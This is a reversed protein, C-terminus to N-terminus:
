DLAHRLAHVQLSEVTATGNGVMLGLTRPGPLRRLRTTYPLLGTAYVEVIDADAVIRVRVPPAAGAIAPQGTTVDIRSSSGDWRPGLDVEVTDDYRTIDFTIDAHAPIDTVDRQGDVRLEIAHKIAQQRLPTVAGDVLALVLKSDRLRVRRPLSLAGVRRRSDPRSDHPAPDRIWGWLLVDGEHTLITPAYLLDGRDIRQVADSRLADDALHGIFAIAYRLPDDQRADHVSVILVDSCGIRVFQPMEWLLGTEIPWSASGDFLVGNFTWAGDDGEEYHVVAGAAHNGHGTSSGLIMQRRGRATFIFPDRHFGTAAGPPPGDIVPRPDKQWTIADDSTARLVSEVRDADTHGAVGTYYITPV